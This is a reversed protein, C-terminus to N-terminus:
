RELNLKFEKKKIFSEKEGMILHSCVNSKLRLMDSTIKKYDFSALTCYEKAGRWCLLKNRKEHRM